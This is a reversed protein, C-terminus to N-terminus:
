ESFRNLRDDDNVYVTQVQCAGRSKESMTAVSATFYEKQDNQFKRSRIAGEDFSSRILAVEVCRFVIAVTSNREVNVFEKNFVIEALEDLPVRQGMAAIPRSPFPGATGVAASRLRRTFEIRDGHTLEGGLLLLEGLADECTLDMDARVPDLLDDATARIGLFTLPAAMMWALMGIKAV